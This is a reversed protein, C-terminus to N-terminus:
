PLTRDLKKKGIKLKHVNCLCVTIVKQYDIWLMVCWLMRDNYCLNIMESLPQYITMKTCHVYIYRNPLVGLIGAISGPYFSFSHSTIVGSSTSCNALFFSAFITSKLNTSTGPVHCCKLTGSCSSSRAVNTSPFANSPELTRPNWVILSLSISMIGSGSVAIISGKVAAGVRLRTQLM